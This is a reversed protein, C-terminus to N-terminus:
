HLDSSESFFTTLLEHILPDQSRQLAQQFAASHPDIYGALQRFSAVRAVSFGMLWSTFARAPILGDALKLLDRHRHDQEIMAFLPVLEAPDGEILQMFRQEHESYLLIGTVNARENNARWRTLMQGLATESVPLTAKSIYVIHYM